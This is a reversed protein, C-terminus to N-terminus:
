HLRHTLITKVAQISLNTGLIKGKADILINAPIASIGFDQVDSSDWGTLRSVHDAWILSDDHIAHIWRSRDADFSISYISFGVADHFHKAHFNSYLKVLQPNEERCPECWSAWFDVLVYKGRLSSLSLLKGSTDPLTIDHLTDGSQEVNSGKPIFDCTTFLTMLMLSILLLSIDKKLLFM